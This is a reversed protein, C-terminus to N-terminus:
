ITTKVLLDTTFILGTLMWYGLALLFLLIFIKFLINKKAGMDGLLKYKGIM